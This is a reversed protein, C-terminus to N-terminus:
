QKAENSMKYPNTVGFYSMIACRPHGLGNRGLSDVIIQLLLLLNKLLPWSDVLLWNQIHLNLM